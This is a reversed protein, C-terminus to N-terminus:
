GEMTGKKNKFFFKKLVVFGVGILILVAGLIAIAVKKKTSKEAKNKQNKEEEQIEIERLKQEEARAKEEDQKRQLEIKEKQSIVNLMDSETGETLFKVNKTSATYDIIINFKIGNKTEIPLFQIKEKPIVKNGKDDISSKLTIKSDSKKTPETQLPLKPLNSSNTISSNINKSKDDIILTEKLDAQNEEGNPNGKKPEKNKTEVEEDRTVELEKAYIKQYFNLSTFCMIFLIIKQIKNM